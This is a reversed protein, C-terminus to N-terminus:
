SLCFFYCHFTHEQLDHLCKYVSASWGHMCQLCVLWIQKFHPVRFSSFAGTYMLYEHSTHHPSIQTHTHTHAQVCAHTCIHTHRRTHLSPFLISAFQAALLWFNLASVEDPLRLSFPSPQPFFSLPLPPLCPSDLNHTHTHIHTHTYSLALPPSPAPCSGANRWYCSFSQSASCSYSNEENEAM